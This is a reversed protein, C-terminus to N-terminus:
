AELKIDDSAVRHMGFANAHLVRFRAFVVKIEKVPLLYHLIAEATAYRSDAHSSRSIRRLQQDASPKLPAPDEKTESVVDDVLDDRQKGRDEIEFAVIWFQAFQICAVQDLGTLHQSM